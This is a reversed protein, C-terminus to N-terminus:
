DIKILENSAQTDRIIADFVYGTEKVESITAFITDFESFPMRMPNTTRKYVMYYECDNTWTISYTDEYNDNESTEKHYEENREIIVDSSQGVAQDKYKFKGVHYDSCEREKCASFVVLAMLVIVLQTYKRM